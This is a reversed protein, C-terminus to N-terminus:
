TKQGFFDNYGGLPLTDTAGIIFLGPNAPRYAPKAM